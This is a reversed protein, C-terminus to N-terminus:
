GKLAPLKVERPPDAEEDSGGMMDQMAQRRHPVTTGELQGWMRPSHKGDKSQIRCSYDLHRLHKPTAVMIAGGM